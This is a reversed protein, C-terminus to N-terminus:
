PKSENRRAMEREKIGALRAYSGPPYVGVQKSSRRRPKAQFGPGDAFDLRQQECGSPKADPRRGFSESEGADAATPRVGRNCLPRGTGAAICDSAIRGTAADQQTGNSM